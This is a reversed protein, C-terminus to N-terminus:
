SEFDPNYDEERMGFTWAVAEKATKMNPPVRLLYRRRKGDPEPTANLVEVVFISQGHRGGLDKRYLVGYNDQHLKKLRSNKLYREWGYIDILVRRMAVNNQRDILAPTIFCKREIVWDPVLCGHWAFYKDGDAFCLAPGASNHLNGSEDTLFSKPHECIFAFHEFLQYALAGDLMKLWNNLESERNTAKFNVEPAMLAFEYAAIWYFDWTGWSELFDVKSADSNSDQPGATEALHQLIKKLTDEITKNKSARIYGNTVMFDKVIGLRQGLSARLTSEIQLRSDINCGSDFTSSLEASLDRILYSTLKGHISQGFTTPHTTNFNIQQTFSGMLEKFEPQNQHGKMAKLFAKMAEEEPKRQQQIILIRLLRILASIERPRRCWVVTPPDLDISRYVEAISAEVEKRPHKAGNTVRQMLASTYDRLQAANVLSKDLQNETGLM